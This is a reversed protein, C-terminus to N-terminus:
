DAVVINQTGGIASMELGQKKVLSRGDFDVVVPLHENEWVLHALTRM